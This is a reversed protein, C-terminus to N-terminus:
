QAAFVDSDLRSLDAAFFPEGTLRISIRLLRESAWRQQESMPADRFRNISVYANSSV